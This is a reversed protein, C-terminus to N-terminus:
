TVTQVHSPPKAGWCAEWAAGHLIRATLPRPTSVIKLSLPRGIILYNGRETSIASVTDLGRRCWQQVERRAEFRMSYYWQVNLLRLMICCKRALNYLAQNNRYATNFIRRHLPTSKGRSFESVGKTRRQPLAQCEPSSLAGVTAAVHRHAAICAQPTRHHSCLRFWCVHGVRKDFL